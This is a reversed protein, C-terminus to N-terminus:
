KTCTLHVVSLLIKEHLINSYCQKGGRLRLQIHMNVVPIQISIISEKINMPEIKKSQQNLSLHENVSLNM